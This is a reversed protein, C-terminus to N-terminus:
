VLLEFIAGQVSLGTNGLHLRLLAGPPAKPWEVYEGLNVM